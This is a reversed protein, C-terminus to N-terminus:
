QLSSPFLCVSFNAKVFTFNTHKKIWKPKTDRKNENYVLMCRRFTQDISYNAHTIKKKKKKDETGKESCSKRNEEHTKDKEASQNQIRETERHTHTHKKKEENNNTSFRFPSFSSSSFGDCPFYTSAIVSTIM